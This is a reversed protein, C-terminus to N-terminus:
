FEKTHRPIGLEKFIDYVSKGEALMKNIKRVTEPSQGLDGVPRDSEIDVLQYRSLVDQLNADSLEVRSDVSKAKKSRPQKKKGFVRQHTKVEAKDALTAKRRWSRNAKTRTKKASSKIQHKKAM